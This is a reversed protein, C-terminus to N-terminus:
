SRQSPSRLSTLAAESPLPERFSSSRVSFSGFAVDQIAIRKHLLISMCFASWTSASLSFWVNIAAFGAFPNTIADGSQTLTGLSSLVPILAWIFATGLLSYLYNMRQSRYKPHGKTHHKKHLSLMWSVIFGCLSGFVFIGMSGGSDYVNLRVLLQRNIEYGIVTPLTHYFLELPGVRGHFATYSVYVSLACSLAGSFSSGFKSYFPTLEILSSGVSSFSETSPQLQVKTFFASVLFYLQVTIALM